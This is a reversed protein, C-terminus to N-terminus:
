LWPTRIANIEIVRAEKMDINNVKLIIKPM